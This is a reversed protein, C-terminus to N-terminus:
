KHDPRNNGKGSEAESARSASDNILRDLLQSLEGDAAADVQYTGSDTVIEYQYADATFPTREKTAAAHLRKQNLVREAAQRQDESLEDTDVEIAQIFGGVGGSRRIQARM